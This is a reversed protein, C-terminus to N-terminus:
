TQERGRALSLVAAAVEGPTISLICRKKEKTCVTLGCGFCETQHYFIKHGSRAPFWQGPKNRASFIAVCPTGVASALHMPGSDHGVFVKARSLAAASERPALRGCLNLKPGGWEAACREALQAEEPAGILVLHWQPLEKSLQTLLARWNHEEWDNAPAKTGLCIMLVPRDAPVYRAAAAHEEPTLALDWSSAAELEISGLSRVRRLLRRTESEFLGTAKDLCVTADAPAIPSGIVRPVGSCRFFMTDRWAKLRGRAASLNIVADFRGARIRNSVQLLKGPNRLGMPYDIVHEFFHPPLVSEIPAAKSAVPKNTLLSLQAEPFAQRVLQLAPLAVVTDGLSGLRYVLVKRANNM